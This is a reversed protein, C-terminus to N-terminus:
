AVKTSDPVLRRANADPLSEIWRECLAFLADSDVEINRRYPADALVKGAGESFCPEDLNRDLFRLWEGGTLRAAESRPYVTLCIRRILISLNRVRDSDSLNPDQRLRELQKTALKKVKPRSKRRWFWGVAFLILITFTALIWWGAAPPWWTVAGPHHWDRLPLESYNM